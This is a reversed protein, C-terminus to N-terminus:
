STQLFPWKVTSSHGDISYILHSQSYLERRICMSGSCLSFLSYNFHSSQPSMVKFSNANIEGSSCFAHLFLAGSFSDQFLYFNNECPGAYVSKILWLVRIWVDDSIYNPYIQDESSKGKLCSTISWGETPTGTFCKTRPTTRSDRPGKQSPTTEHVGTMSLSNNAQCLFVPRCVRQLEAQHCVKITGCLCVEIASIWLSAMGSRETWRGRTAGLLVGVTQKKASFALWFHRWGAM